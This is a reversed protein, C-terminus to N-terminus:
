ISFRRKIIIIINENFCKKSIEFLYDFDMNEINIKEHVYLKNIVEVLLRGYKKFKFLNEETFRIKCKQDYNIELKLIKEKNSVSNNLEILLNNTENSLDNYLGTKSLYLGFDYLNHILFTKYEILPQNILNM